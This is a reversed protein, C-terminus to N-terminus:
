RRGRDAGPPKSPSGGAPRAQPPRPSTPRTRAPDPPSDEPGARAPAPLVSGPSVPTPPHVDRLRVPPLPREADSRQLVLDNLPGDDLHEVSHVLRIEPAEGVPEPRSAARMIRQVRQRDPDRPLLHVPHEVRIDAVEEALKIM